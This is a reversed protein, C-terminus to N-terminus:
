SDESMALGASSSGPTCADLGIATRVRRIVGLDPPPLL